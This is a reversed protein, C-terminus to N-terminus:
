APFGYSTRSAIPPRKQTNQTVTEGGPRVSTPRTRPTVPIKDSYVTAGRSYLQPTSAGSLPQISAQNASDNIARAGADDFEAGESEDGKSKGGIRFIRKRKAKAKAEAGSWGAHNSGHLLAMGPGPHFTGQHPHTATNPAYMSNARSLLHPFSRVAIHEHNRAYPSLTHNSHSLTALQSVSDNLPLVIGNSMRTGGFANPPSNNMLFPRYANSLRRGRRSPSGTLANSPMDRPAMPMSLPRNNLPPSTAPNPYGEHDRNTHEEDGVNAVALVNILRTPPLKTMQRQLTHSPLSEARSHKRSLEPRAGPGTKVSSGGTDQRDVLHLRGSINGPPQWFRGPGNSRTQQDLLSRAVGLGLVSGGTSSRVSSPRATSGDGATGAPSSALGNSRPILAGLGNAQSGRGVTGAESPARIQSQAHFIRPRTLAGSTGSASFISPTKWGSVTSSPASPAVSLGSRGYSRAGDRGFLKLSPSADVADVSANETIDDDDDVNDSDYEQREEKRRKREELLDDLEDAEAEAEAEWDEELNEGEDWGERGPGIGMLGGLGKGKEEKAREWLRGFAEYGSHTPVGEPRMGYTPDYDEIDPFTTYSTPSEALRPRRSPAPSNSSTGYQLPIPATGSPTSRSKRRSPPSTPDSNSEQNSRTSGTEPPRYPPFMERERYPDHWDHPDEDDRQPMPTGPDDPRISVSENRYPMEVRGGMGSGAFWKQSLRHIIGPLDERFMERLQGEIEQQLYGRIVEISDFTSSVDVNQLPDNKFVLTIGKSKSIVLILIARLNLLSLKLTMPVLLPQSALLPTSM